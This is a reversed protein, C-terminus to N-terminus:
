EMGISGVLKVCGVIGGIEDRITSIIHNLVFFVFSFLLLFQCSLIAIVFIQLFIKMYNFFSSSKEEIFNNQNFVNCINQFEEENIISFYSNNHYYDTKIDNHSSIQLLSSIFSYLIVGTSYLIFSYLGFVFLLTPVYQNM